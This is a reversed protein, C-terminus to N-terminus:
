DARDSQGTMEAARAAQELERAASRLAAEPDLGVDRAAVVTALLSRGLAREDSPAAGSVHDGLLGPAVVATKGAVKSAYLLAPLTSPIGDMVSERGKEAVKAQEWEVGRNGVDAASAVTSGAPSERRYIDPHRAVLKARVGDIVAALDFRAEEAALHSHFVVQFLLDGLEERLDDFVATRDSGASPELSAIRDLAELTEYSEELLHRRLSGHSQVRDWPCEARLTAM